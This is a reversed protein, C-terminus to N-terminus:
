HARDGGVVAPAAENVQVEKEPSFSTACTGTACAPRAGTVTGAQGPLATSVTNLRDLETKCPSDLARIPVLLPCSVSLFCNPKRQAGEIPTQFFFVVGLGLGVRAGRAVRVRFGVVLYVFLCRFVALLLLDAVVGSYVM